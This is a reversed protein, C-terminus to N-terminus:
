AKMRLVYVRKCLTSVSPPTCCPAVGETRALAAYQEACIAWNLVYADGVFASSVHLEVSRLQDRWDSTRQGECACAGM